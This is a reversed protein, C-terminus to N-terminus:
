VVNRKRRLEEITLLVKMPRIVIVKLRMLHMQKIRTRRTPIATPRREIIKERREIVQKTLVDVEKRYGDFNQNFTTSLHARIKASTLKELGELKIIKEIADMAENRNVPFTEEDSSSM